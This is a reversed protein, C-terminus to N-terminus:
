GPRSAFSDRRGFGILGEPQAFVGRSGACQKRLRQYEEDTIAEQNRLFDLRALREPLPQEASFQGYRSHLYANRAEFTKGIFM